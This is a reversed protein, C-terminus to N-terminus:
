DKRVVLGYLGGGDDKLYGKGALTEWMPRGFGMPPQIAYVTSHAGTLPSRGLRSDGDLQQMKLRKKFARLAKKEEENLDNM